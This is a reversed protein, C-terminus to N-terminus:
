HSVVFGPIQSLFVAVARLGPSLSGLISSLFGSSSVSGALHVIAALLRPSVRGRSSLNSVSSYQVYVAFMCDLVQDFLCCGHM